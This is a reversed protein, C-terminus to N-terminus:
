ARNRCTESSGRGFWRLGDTSHTYRLILHCMADSGPGTGVSRRGYRREDRKTRSAKTAHFQIPWLSPNQSVFHAHPFRKLHTLDLERSNSSRKTPVEVIDALCDARDESNRETLSNKDTKKTPVKAEERGFLRFARGVCWRKQTRSERAGIDGIRRKTTPSQTELRDARDHGVPHVFFVLHHHLPPGLRLLLHPLPARGLLVPPAREDNTGRDGQLLPLALKGAEDLRPDQLHDNVVPRLPGRKRLHPGARRATRGITTLRRTTRISKTTAAPPPTTAAHRTRPSIDPKNVYRKRDKSTSDKSTSDVRLLPTYARRTALYVSTTTRFSVM